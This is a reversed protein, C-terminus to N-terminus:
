RIRLRYVKEELASLGREQFQPFDHSANAAAELREVEAVAGFLSRVEAEPVSFPPGEMEAQAYELSLLLLETGPALLRALAEVYDRRMAQPLAVLAARDYVTDVPGILRRDLKFFDGLLIEISSATWREVPGDMTRHATLGAEEFFAAVALESLECGVVPHGREALWLMDRSKGCLPVFVRAEPGADLQDWYRVLHPNIGHQHFGIQNKRWRQHWFDAEM